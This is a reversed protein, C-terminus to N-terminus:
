SMCSSRTLSETVSATGTELEPQSSTGLQIQKGGATGPAEPSPWTRWMNGTNEGMKDRPWLPEASDVIGPVSPPTGQAKLSQQSTM